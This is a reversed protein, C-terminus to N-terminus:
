RHRARVLKENKLVIGSRRGAYGVHEFVALRHQPEAGFQEFEQRDLRDIGIRLQQAIREIGHRGRLRTLRDGNKERGAM